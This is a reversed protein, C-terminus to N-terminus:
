FAESFYSGPSRPRFIPDQEVRRVREPFQALAREATVRTLPKAATASSFTQGAQTIVWTRRGAGEILRAARLAKTLAQGEGPNLAAAVELDAVGWSLRGRLRRLTRRIVLTPLGAVTRKPDIRMQNWSLGTARQPPAGNNSIIRPSAADSRRWACNGHGSKM